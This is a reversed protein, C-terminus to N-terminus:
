NGLKEMMELSSNLDDLNENKEIRPNKNPETEYNENRLQSKWERLGHKRLMRESVTLLLYFQSIKKILAIRTKKQNINLM